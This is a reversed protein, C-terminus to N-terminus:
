ERSEGRRRSGRVQQGGDGASGHRQFSTPRPSITATWCDQREAPASGHRQRLDLAAAMARRRRARVDRIREPILPSPAPHSHSSARSSPPPRCSRPELSLTAPSQPPAATPNPTTTVFPHLVGQPGSACLSQVSFVERASSERARRVTRASEVSERARRTTRANGDAM